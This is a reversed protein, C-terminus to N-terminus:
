YGEAFFFGGLNATPLGTASLMATATITNTGKSFLSFITAGGNGQIFAGVCANPFAIPLTATWNAEGAGSSIASGWQRIIGSPLKQYGELSLAATFLSSYRLQASGSASWTNLGNSVLELTAGPPVAISQIVGNGPTIFNSEVCVLTVPIADVNRFHIAAGPKLRNAAPLAVNAPATGGLIVLSGVAELGLVGSSPVETYTRYNGAARRVFETTAIAKSDDMLAPTNATPNVLAPSNIPALGQTLNKFTLPTTGLTIVSDTTLLWLSDASLTGQEVAVMLGPTVKANSDADTTRKWIDGTLYIGNDKAQAQDKVLVRAGLPVAVGDITQTGALQIPGTTAVLVSQKVDQKNIADTTSEDVYQRTALVVGPDIKLVVNAASSVIFNMRVVQTRGSGQSMLPKYSPACNAVAVLAGDADYLGIERIWWGGEDAPIIQEAILINPNAPDISLKNLPRRRKENILKTQSRDPIPDTGNADGVGLETLKWPIGLADANAQKAEGTATLIAFFQSNPDIM